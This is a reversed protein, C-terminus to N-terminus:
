HLCGNRFKKAISDSTESIFYSPRVFPHSRGMVFENICKTCVVCLDLRGGVTRPCIWFTEPSLRYRFLLLLLCENLLLV